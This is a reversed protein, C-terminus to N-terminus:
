SGYFTYTSGTAGVSGASGAGAAAGALGGSADLTAAAVLRGAHVWVYGGSGGGGGGADGNGTRSGPAGAGGTASITGGAGDLEVCVLIVGGAGQGGGGGQATGANAVSGGGGGGGGTSAGSGDILRLRQGFSATRVSGMIALAATTPGGNGGAAGPGGQGGAGGAGGGVSRTGTPGSGANGPNTAGGAASSGNGGGARTSGMSGEAAVNSAGSGATGPAGNNHLNGRITARGTAYVPFGATRVSIGSAVTFTTAYVGRSLTYALNPASGSTTAWSYTNTGDLNVAGDSGDGAFSLGLLAQLPLRATALRADVDLGAYGSAANKESEKQYGTHPDSAAVHAALSDSIDGDVQDMILQVVRGRGIGGRM